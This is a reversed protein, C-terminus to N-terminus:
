RRWWRRHRQGAFPLRRDRLTGGRRARSRCGASLARDWAFRRTAASWGRGWPRTGAAAATDLSYIARYTTLSAFLAPRMM